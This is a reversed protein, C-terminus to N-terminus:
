LPLVYSPILKRLQTMARHLRVSVVNPTEELITAIEKPSLDDIYRMVVVERSKEDLQTLYPLLCEHDLGAEWKSRPNDSPEMGKEELGELSVTERKKRSEDIILNNATKYLLARLNEVQNGSALYQWVKMFTQQTLDKAQEHQYVRFFCHRFIADAFSEYAKLFEEQVNM